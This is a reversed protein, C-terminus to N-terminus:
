YFSLQPMPYHKRNRTWLVAQHQVAAAAILADAIEVSHSRGYKRVFGGALEGTEDNAPLCLLANFFSSILQFERPRAGVWIEASVVPSFYITEGSAVLKMWKALISQDHGRQIEIAIDTDLLVSM